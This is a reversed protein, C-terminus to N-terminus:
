ITVTAVPGACLQEAGADDTFYVIIDMKTADLVGTAFGADISKELAAINGVYDTINNSTSNEVVVKFGAFNEGGARRELAVTCIGAADCSGSAKLDVALCKSSLSLQESGGEFVGRAAFWIIGVAVIVLLIIIMTSVIMSIGKKNEIM